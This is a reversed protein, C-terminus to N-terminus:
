FTNNTQVLGYVRKCVWNLEALQCREWQCASHNDGLVSTLTIFYFLFSSFTLPTMSQLLLCIPIHFYLKCVM